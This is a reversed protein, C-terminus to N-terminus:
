SKVTKLRALEERLRANEVQLQRRAEADAQAQREAVRRTEAEYAIRAEAIRRAEAEARAKAEAEQYTRLREGTAHDYLRLQGAEVVLDLGLVESHLRKGAMPVYENGSLRFGQLQSSFAEQLPDYIFYEQVGLHAYIVRKNGLDEVKTHRSTLEIVIEPTKGEEDVVYIRRDRKEVGRVVFVDPSIQEREGSDNLYYLFINGTVYVKPDQRFHEELCDLLDIMQRRHVDTEAMPKGDSEPLHDSGFVKQSPVRLQLPSAVYPIAM